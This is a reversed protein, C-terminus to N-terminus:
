LQNKSRMHGIGWWWVVTEVRDIGGMGNEAGRQVGTKTGKTAVAPRIAAHPEENLLRGRPYVLTGPRVPVSSASSKTRRTVAETRSGHRGWHGGIPIM